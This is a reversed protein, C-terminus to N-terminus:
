PQFCDRGLYSDGSSTVPALVSASEGAATQWTVQVQQSGRAEREFLADFQGVRAALEVTVLEQRIAPTEEIKGGLCFDILRVISSKGASIQGHFATVRDSFQMAEHSNRCNLVLTQVRLTLNM